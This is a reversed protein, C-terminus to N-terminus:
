AKTVAPLLRGVAPALYRRVAKNVPKEFCFFLFVTLLVFVAFFVVFEMREGMGLPKSVYEVFFSHAPKQLIYLGYSAEGLIILPMALRSSFFPIGCVSIVLIFLLWLPAMFSSGFPLEFGLLAQIQRQGVCVATLLAFVGIVALRSVAQNTVVPRKDLFWVAGTLGMLFSNLHVPPFYFIFDHPVPRIYGHDSTWLVPTVIVQTIVWLAFSLAFLKPVSIQYRKIWYVAFPFVLYFFAEVSLSWAPGNIRPHPLAWSQLMTANLAVASFTLTEDQLVLFLLMLALALLYLPVIRGIRAIFYSKTDIDKGFYTIGLVFGSLVFFFSMLSPGVFGRIGWAAGYHGAVVIAAAIFRCFTLEEIRRVPALSSV